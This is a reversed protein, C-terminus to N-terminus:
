YMLRRSTQCNRGKMRCCCFFYLNEACGFERLRAPSSAPPPSEGGIILSIKPSRRGTKRSRVHNTQHAHRLRHGAPSRCRNQPRPRSFPRARPTSRLPQSQPCRAPYRRGGLPLRLNAPPRLMGPADGCPLIQREAKDGAGCRDFHALCPSRAGPHSSSGGRAAHRPCDKGGGALLAPNGRRAARYRAGAQDGTRCTTRGATSGGRSPRSKAISWVSASPSPRSTPVPRM